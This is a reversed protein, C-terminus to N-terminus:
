VPKVVHTIRMANFFSGRPGQEPRRQGAIKGAGHHHRIVPKQCCRTVQSMIKVQKAAAKPCTKFLHAVPQGTQVGRMRATNGEKEQTNVIGTVNGFPQRSAAHLKGLITAGTRAPIHM